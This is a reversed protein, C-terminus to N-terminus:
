TLAHTVALARYQLLEALGCREALNDLAHFPLRDFHYDAHVRVGCNFTLSPHIQLRSSVWTHQKL